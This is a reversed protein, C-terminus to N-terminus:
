WLSRWSKTVYDAFSVNLFSYNSKTWSGPAYTDYVTNNNINTKAIIDPANEPKFRPNNPSSTLFKSSKVFPGNLLSYSTLSASYALRINGKLFFPFKNSQVIRRPFTVTLEAIEIKIPSKVEPKTPNTTDVPIIVIKPSITGCAIQELCASKIPAWVVQYMYIKM